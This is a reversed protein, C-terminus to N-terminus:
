EERDSTQIILFNDYNYTCVKLNYKPFYTKCYTVKKDHSSKVSAISAVIILILVSSGLIEGWHDKIWEWTGDLLNLIQKYVRKIM